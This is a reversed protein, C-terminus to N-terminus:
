PRRGYTPAVVGGYQNGADTGVVKRPSANTTATADSLAPGSGVTFQVEDLITEPGSIGGAYRYLIVTYTGDPWSYPNDSSGTVYIYKGGFDNGDGTTVKYYDAESVLDSCGDPSIVWDYGEGSYPLITLCDVM